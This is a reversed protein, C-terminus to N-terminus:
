PSYLYLEVRNKVEASSPPSPDADRGPWVKGHSLGPVWQVPPQTPRLAPRYLHLFDRRWRSEIGPGDLGYATAIGVSSGPGSNTAVTPFSFIIMLTPRSVFYVHLTRVATRIIIGTKEAIIGEMNTYYVIVLWGIPVAM